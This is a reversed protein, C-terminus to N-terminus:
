EIRCNNNEGFNLGLNNFVNVYYNLWEQDLVLDEGNLPNEQSLGICKSNAESLSFGEEELGYYSDCVVCKNNSDESNDSDDKSCSVLPIFLLLLILKKM